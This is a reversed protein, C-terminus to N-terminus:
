KQYGHARAHDVLIQRMIRACMGFFHARNQWEATKWDVLRIYAENVLVGTQLTHDPREQGMYRHALRNLEHFVIPWLQDEVTRDGKSWARLLETVSTRTVRVPLGSEYQIPPYILM